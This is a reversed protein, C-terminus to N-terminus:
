HYFLLLSWIMLFLIPLLLPATLGLFRTTPTGQLLLMVRRPQNPPICARLDAMARMGGILSMYLVSISIISCTPLLTIILAHTREHQADHLMSPATVCIAFATLMFSQSSVLFSLRQCTLNDEHEIRNRIAELFAPDIENSETPMRYILRVEGVADM